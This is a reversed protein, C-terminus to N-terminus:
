QWFFDKCNRSLLPSEVQGVAFLNEKQNYTIYWICFRNEGGSILM